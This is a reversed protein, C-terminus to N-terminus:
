SLFITTQCSDAQLLLLLSSTSFPFEAAGPSGTHSLKLKAVAMVGSFGWCCSSCGPRWLHSPQRFTDPPQLSTSRSNRAWDQLSQKHSGAESWCLASQLNPKAPAPRRVDGWSTKLKLAPGFHCSCKEREKKREKGGKDISSIVKPWTRDKIKFCFYNTVLLIVGTIPTKWWFPLLLLRPQFCQLLNHSTKTKYHLHGELPKELFHLM